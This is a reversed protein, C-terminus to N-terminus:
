EESIKVLVKINNKKRTQANEFYEKVDKFDIIETIISEINLKCDQMFKIIQPLEGGGFIGKITLGKTVARNLVLNNVEEEFFGLLCVNGYMGAIDICQQVAKVAGSAEVVIDFGNGNTIKETQEILDQELLNITYKAGLQTAINLKKDNRGIFTIERGGMAYAVGLAAMGIPGAGIIAIKTDANIEYKSLGCYSVTLPEILVGSKLSIEDPLHYLHRQPMVMYEAYAGDWANITGVSRLDKCKRFNGSLCDECKGCGVANDGVVRDGVNFEKVNKGVKEVIGSWEHGIRVPYKILGDKVFNTEGSYIVLDTGCIGNYVIRILVQDDELKPTPVDSYKLLNKDEVTLVKM